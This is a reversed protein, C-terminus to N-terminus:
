QTLGFILVGERSAGGCGGGGRGDDEVEVMMGVRARRRQVLEVACLFFNLLLFWVCISAFFMIM